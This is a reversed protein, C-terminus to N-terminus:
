DSPEYERFEYPDSPDYVPWRDIEMTDDFRVLYCPRGKYWQVQLVTGWPREHGYRYGYHHTARLQLLSPRPLDRVFSSSADGFDHM